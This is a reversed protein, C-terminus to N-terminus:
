RDGECRAKLGAAENALYRATLGSIPKYRQPTITFPYDLEEGFVNGVEEDDFSQVAESPPTQFDGALSPLVASTPARAPLKHLTAGEWAVDIADIPPGNVPSVLESFATNYRPGKPLLGRDFYTERNLDLIHVDWGHQAYEQYAM